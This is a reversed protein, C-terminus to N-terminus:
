KKIHQFFVVENVYIVFVFLKIAYWCGVIQQKFVIIMLVFQYSQITKIYHELVFM